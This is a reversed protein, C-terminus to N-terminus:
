SNKIEKHSYQMASIILLSWGVIFFLGGIPTIIGIGNLGLTETSKLFCLLYISFSFLITGSLFCYYILQIYKLNEKALIAVLILALGHYFQYRVGTEFSSLIEPTFITKLYHAGFAGLVVSLMTFIAGFILANKNM